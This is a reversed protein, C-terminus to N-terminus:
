RAAAPAKALERAVLAHGAPTLHLDALGHLAAPDPDAAFAPTLDHSPIGLTRLMAAVRRSPREAEISAPPVNWEAAVRRRLDADYAMPLPLVVVDFTAGLRACAGRIEALREPIRRWGEAFEPSRAAAAADDLEFLARVSPQGMGLLGADRSQAQVEHKAREGPGALRALARTLGLSRTRARVWMAFRTWSGRRGGPPAPALMGGVVEYRRESSSDGVDNGLFLALVVRTPKVAPALREMAAAHEHLGYGPCGANVVQVGPGLAAELRACFTEDDRVEAGLTISDGLVLIRERKAPDVEAGRTGLSGTTFGDRRVNSAVRWGAREDSEYPVDIATRPPAPVLVRAVAEAAALVLAAIGLGALLKRARRAM